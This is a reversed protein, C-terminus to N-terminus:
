FRDVAPLRLRFHFRTGWDPRTELHLESDMARVLRRVIALGLGSGSFFSGPRDRAKRFPEYMTRQNDPDIGRGTDRVAIEVLEREVRVASMEVWGQETFKLGNTMLNLLVRGLARPRGWARDPDPVSTRLDIGKVEAIPGVLRLVGDFVDTLSFASPEEDMVDAGHRALDMVDTVVSQMALAASYVLGLQHRQQENVAGSFGNRLTEALFSVSTLPSRLDHAVEVLLEFGDPDALRSAFDRADRPLTARARRELLALTDLCEAPDATSAGESWRRLCEIRLGELLRRQLLRDGEADEEPAQGARVAEVWTLLRELEARVADRGAQADDPWSTLVAASLQRLLPESPAGPEVETASRSAMSPM